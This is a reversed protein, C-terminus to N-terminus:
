VQLDSTVTEVLIEKDLRIRLDPDVVLESKYPFVLQFLVLVLFLINSHKPSVAAAEAPAMGFEVVAVEV